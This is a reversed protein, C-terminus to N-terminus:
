EKRELAEVAKRAASYVDEAYFHVREGYDYVSLQIERIGTSALNDNPNNYFSPCRGADVLRGIDAAFRLSRFITPLNLFMVTSLSEMLGKSGYEELRDALESISM